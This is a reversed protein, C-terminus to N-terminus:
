KSDDNKIKLPENESIKVNDTKVTKRSVTKKATGKPKSAIPHEVFHRELKVIVDKVAAEINATEVSAIPKSKSQKSSFIIVQFCYTETSYAIIINGHSLKKESIQREIEKIYKDFCSDIFAKETFYNNVTAKTGIGNTQSFLNPQSNSNAM